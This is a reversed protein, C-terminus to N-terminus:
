TAYGAELLALDMDQIPQWSPPWTPDVDAAVQDVVMARLENPLTALHCKDDSARALQRLAVYRREDTSVTTEGNAGTAVIVNSVLAAERNGYIIGVVDSLDFSAQTSMAAGKAAFIQDWIAVKSRGYSSPLKDLLTDVAFLFPSPFGGVQIQM